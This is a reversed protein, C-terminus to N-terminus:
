ENRLARVPNGSAAKISEFSITLLAISLAGVGAYIFVMASVPIHYAFGELWKDMLYWAPPVAIIFAIAVLKLFEKSMLRVIQNVSAGLVKRVGIERVRREAMYTSLGYLGLCSIFMVILTFGTIIGSVRRDDNYQKQINSDLFSYEFPTDNVLNKWTQEMSAVTTSFNGAEVSAILYDFNRASDSMQFMTPVIEEKLSVQHFDEIVGIVEFDNKRGQWEFHLHQGVM